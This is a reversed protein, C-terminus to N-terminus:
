IKTLKIRGSIAITITYLGASNSIQITALNSVTGAPHFIPRNNAEIEVGDIFSTMKREWEGQAPSYLDLACSGGDFSVRVKRGEFVARYRANHLRAQIERAGNELLTAPSHTPYSTAWAILLMGLLFLVILFEVLCFGNKQRLAMM